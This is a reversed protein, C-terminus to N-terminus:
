TDIPTGWAFRDMMILVENLANQVAKARLGNRDKEHTYSGDLVLFMDFLVRFIRRDIKEDHLAQEHYQILLRKMEAYEDAEFQRYVRLMVLFSDPSEYREMLQQIIGETDAM